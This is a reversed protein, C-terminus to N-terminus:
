GNTSQGGGVQLCWKAAGALQYLADVDKPRRRNAADFHEWAAAYDGIWLYAVGLQITESTGSSARAYTDRMLRLAEDRHGMLM